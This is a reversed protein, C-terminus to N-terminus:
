RGTVHCTTKGSWERVRYVCSQRKGDDARGSNRLGVVVLCCVVAEPHGHVGRHLSCTQQTRPVVARWRYRRWFLTSGSRSSAPFAQSEDVCINGTQAIKRVRCPAPSARWLVRAFTMGGFMLAIVALANTRRSAPSADPLEEGLESALLEVVEQLTARSAPGRRSRGSSRRPRVGRRTPRRSTRSWSSSSGSPAPESKARWGAEERTLAELPGRPMVSGCACQFAPTSRPRRPDLTAEVAITPGISELEGTGTVTTV